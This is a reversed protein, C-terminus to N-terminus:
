IAHLTDKALMILYAVVYALGVIVAYTVVLLFMTYNPGRWHLRTGSSELVEILWLILRAYLLFGILHLVILTHDM